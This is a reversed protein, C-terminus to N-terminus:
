SASADMFLAETGEPLRAPIEEASFVRL